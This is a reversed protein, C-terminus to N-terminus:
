KCKNTLISMLNIKTTRTWHRNLLWTSHTSYILTRLLWLGMKHWMRWFQVRKFHVEKVQWSYMAKDLVLSSQNQETQRAVTNGNLWKSCSVSKKEASNSELKSSFKSGSSRLCFTNLGKKSSGSVDWRSIFELRSGLGM